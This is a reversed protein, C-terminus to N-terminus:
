DNLSAKEFAANVGGFLDALLDVIFSGGIAVVIIVLAVTMWRERVQGVRRTEMEKERPSM